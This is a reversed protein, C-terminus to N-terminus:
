QLVYKGGKKIVKMTWVQNGGSPGTYVKYSILYKQGEKDNPFNNLLITNIKALRAEEKEEAKGTRVDFNKYKGNGVLTYDAVTLTYKITNDPVWTTGDHGFQLTTAIVEPIANWKTGDFMFNVNLVETKGGGIYSDYQVAVFDNKAAYPYKTGLYISIIRQAEAKQADNKGSISNFKLGMAKYDVSELVFPAAWKTTYTFRSTKDILIDGVVEYKTGKLIVLMSWVESVGSYVNYVVNFRDGDKANPFNKKLITEIKVRRAEEKEEGKGTRVDFNKYKGNGVLTYDSNTLTYSSILEYDGSDNLQVLMLLTGSDSSGNYYNYTVSYLQGKSTQPFNKKLITEIKTRRAEEKEETKGPRIDFNDYKGNGVLDYDVDTLTYDIKQSKTKYSLDIISGKPTNAFKYDFFKNFDNSSNLSKLNIANYDADKVTYTDMMIPDSYNFTINASSAIDISGDEKYSVGLTPYKNTLFVPLKTKAEDINAFFTKDLELGGEKMKNKYDDEVLTYSIDGVAKNKSQQQDIENYIDEMPDCSTFVLLFVTLFYFLKKM